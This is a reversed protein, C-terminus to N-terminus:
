IVNNFLIGNIEEPNVNRFINNIPRFKCNMLISFALDSFLMNLSMHIYLSQVIALVKMIRTSAIIQGISSRNEYMRISIM